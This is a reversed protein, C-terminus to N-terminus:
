NSLSGQVVDGEMVVASPRLRLIQDSDISFLNENLMVFDAIKGAEISGLQDELRLQYAGHSTYGELLQVLELREDLPSRAGDSDTVWWDKPYQRTHGVQMGLYPSIYTPLMEGGWWEDSSFTVTAGTDFISKAQYMRDYRESGLLGEAVDNPEAGFWWPSFNAIVGLKKFRPLDLPNLIAIHAVTIRPYFDESVITQAAEVADLVTGVALDGIAHVHLDLKEEHLALLLELLEEVSFMPQVTESMGKYTESYSASRNATIGDMFVKVSNFRLREGGYEHRYRKLEAIADDARTPVFIQYTGYYRLPLRGEKELESIVAYVYDGFGKNGADFLSTIGHRSLIQLTEAVSEKHRRMLKEDTLQFEQSFYQVGAGEKLWGTPEGTEDRAYMALGPKPDVTNEDIGLHKLAKSNLWYDHATESEFWVLRDPVIEDLWEKRPGQDGSVFMDTPWCCLRLWDKDPHRDAYSRIASLIEKSTKGEVYGFQEVNVYGPHAHADVMGPIILKGRVDFVVDSAFLEADKRTGVFVFKGDKVVLVEAWPQKPSGTFIKANKIVLDANVLSSDLVPDSVSEARKQCGSAFGLLVVIMYAYIVKRFM